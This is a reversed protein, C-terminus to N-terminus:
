KINIQCNKLLVNIEIADDSGVNYIKCIDKKKNMIKFLCRSLDDTHMFSRIIKYNFKISLKRDLINKILNGILFHSNKPIYKGVFTFM